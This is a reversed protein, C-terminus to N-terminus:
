RNGEVDCGCIPCFNIEIQLDWLFGHECSQCLIGEENAGLIDGKLKEIKISQFISTSNIYNNESM